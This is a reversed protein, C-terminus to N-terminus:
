RALTLNGTIDKKVEVLEYGQLLPRRIADPHKCKIVEVEKIEMSTIRYPKLLQPEDPFGSVGWYDKIAKINDKCFAVGENDYLYENLAFFKYRRFNTHLTKRDPEKGTEELVEEQVWGIAGELSKYNDLIQEVILLIQSYLTTPITREDHDDYKNHGNLTGLAHEISKAKGDGYTIFAQNVRDTIRTDIINGQGMLKVVRKVDEKRPMGHLVYFQSLYGEWDTLLRNKQADELYQRVPNNKPIKKQKIALRYITTIELLERVGHKHIMFRLDLADYNTMISLKLILEFFKEETIKNVKMYM